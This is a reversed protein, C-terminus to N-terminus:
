DAQLQCTSAAGCAVLAVVLMGGLTLGVTKWFGAMPNGTRISDVGLRPVSVRCSDCTAPETYPVGSIFDPTFRVGHLRLMRGGQWVQVQQRESPTSPVPPTIPHWGAGCAAQPVMLAFLLMAQLRRM